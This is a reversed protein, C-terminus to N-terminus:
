KNFEEATKNTLYTFSIIEINHDNTQKSVESELASIDSKSNIRLENLRSIYCNKLISNTQYSVLYWFLNVTTLETDDDIYNVEVTKGEALKKADVLSKVTMYSNTLETGDEPSDGFISKIKRVGVCYQKANQEYYRIGEAGASNITDIEAQIKQNLEEQTNFEYLVFTEEIPFETQEGDIVEIVSIFSVVVWTM